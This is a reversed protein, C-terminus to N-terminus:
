SFHSVASFSEAPTKKCRWVADSAFTLQSPYWEQSPHPNCVEACFLIEGWTFRFLFARFGEIIKVFMAEPILIFTLATKHTKSHKPIM